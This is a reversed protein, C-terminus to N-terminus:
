PAFVDTQFVLARAYLAAQAPYGAALAQRAMYRLTQPDSELTGLYQGASVMAQRFQNGAMLTDIGQMFLQRAQDTEKAQMRALMFYESAVGYEGRALANKAYHELTDASRGMDIHTLFQTGLLPLGQEFALDAFAQALREPLVEAASDRMFSALRSRLDATQVPDTSGKLARAYAKVLILRAETRQRLDGELAPGLLMRELTLINMDEQESRALLIAVDANRTNARYLNQIYSVTLEDLAEQAYLKEVLERRPFIMVLLAGVLLAILFLQWTSALGLRPINGDIGAYRKSRDPLM